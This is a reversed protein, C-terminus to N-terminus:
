ISEDGHTRVLVLAFKSGKGHAEISVIHQNDRTGVKLETNPGSTHECTLAKSDKDGGENMTVDEHNPTHCVLVNGFKKLQNQYFSIIKEPPDDSQYELAVVKLGFFSTSINVNASKDKGNDEPVLKAGPYIPLGTDRADADESVHLNAVPTNIDVNKDQGNKDKKVNISCGGLVVSGAITLMLLRHVMARKKKKNM